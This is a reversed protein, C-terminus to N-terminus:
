KDRTDVKQKNVKSKMWGWSRFDLSALDPTGFLEIETVM